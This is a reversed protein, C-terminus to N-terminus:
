TEDATLADFWALWFNWQTDDKSIGAYVDGPGAWGPPKNPQTTSNYKMTRKQAVVGTAAHQMSQFADQDDIATAVGMMNGKRAMEKQEDTAAKDILSLQYTEHRGVGRPVYWGIMATRAPPAAGLPAGRRPRPAGAGGAGTNVPFILQNYNRDMSWGYPDDPDQGRSFLHHGKAPFSIKVLDVLGALSGEDALGLEVFPRHAGIFHYADGANQDAHSKWNSHTDLMFPPNLPEWEVGGYMLDNYYGMEGLHEDLSPAEDDFNGFVLGNRLEVRARQLGFATKDWDGYIKKELPAAILSGEGDFVWGHYGCRFTPSNGFAAM